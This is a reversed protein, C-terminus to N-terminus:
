HSIRPRHFCRDIIKIAGTSRGTQARGRRFIGIKLRPFRTTFVPVGQPLFFLDEAGLYSEM